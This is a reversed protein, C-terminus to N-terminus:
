IRLGGDVPLVMGTLDDNQLAFMVAEAVSRPEVLRRLATRKKLDDIVAEKLAARTSETDVFGPAIAVARIGLTGLEKAWTVTLANIGAKAAAYASQGANGQAAISSINVIVGRTRSLAMHEVVHSTALFASTLNADLVRKWDELSHRRQTGGMVNFLLGNHILGANNVLGDIRGHREVTAAVARAVEDADTLDCPCCLRGPHAAASEALAEADRDWAVVSCGQAELADAIVGGLCGAAGTVIIVKGQLNV